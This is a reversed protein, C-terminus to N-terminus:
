HAGRKSGRADFNKHSLMPKHKQQQDHFSRVSTEKYIDRGDSQRQKLGKGASEHSAGHDDKLSAPTFTKTARGGFFRRYQPGQDFISNEDIIFAWFAQYGPGYLREKTFSGIFPETPPITWKPLLAHFSYDGAQLHLKSFDEVCDKSVRYVLGTECGLPKMILTRSVGKGKSRVILSDLSVEPRPVLIPEPMFEEKKKLPISETELLARGEIFKDIMTELLATPHESFSEKESFFYWGEKQTYYLLDDKTIEIVDGEIYRPLTLPTVLGVMADMLRLPYYRSRQRSNFQHFLGESAQGEVRGLLVDRKTSANKLYGTFTQINIRVIKSYYFDDFPEQLNKTSTSKTEPLSSNSMLLSRKRPVGPTQIGDSLYACFLKNLAGEKAFEEIDLPSILIRFKIERFGAEDPRNIQGLRMKEMFLASNRQFISNFLHYVTGSLLLTGRGSLFTLSINSLCRGLIPCYLNLFEERVQASAQELARFAEQSNPSEEAESIGLSRLVFLLLLSIGRGCLILDQSLVQSAPMGLRDRFFHALAVEKDGVPSIPIHGAESSQVRFTKSDHTNTLLAVGLGSGFGLIVFNDESHSDTTGSPHIKIFSDMNVTLFAHGVAEFDNMLYCVEFKFREALVKGSVSPWKYYAAREFFNDKVIGSMAICCYRPVNKSVIPRSIFRQIIAQLDPYDSTFYRAEDLLQRNGLDQRNQGYLFLRANTAGIDAVLCYEM